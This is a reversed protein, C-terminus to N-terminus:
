RVPGGGGAAAHRCVGRRRSLPQGAQVADPAQRRQEHHHVVDEQPCEGAVGDVADLALAVAALAVLLGVPTDHALAGAALAAVGAALTARALTIWSAPGWQDAVGHGFAARM